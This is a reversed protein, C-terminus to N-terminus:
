TPGGGGGCGSIGGNVLYAKNIFRPLGKPGAKQGASRRARRGPQNRQPTQHYRGGHVVLGGVVRNHVARRTRQNVVAGRLVGVAQRAASASCGNKEFVKFAPAPGGRQGAASKKSLAPFVAESKKERSERFGSTHAGVSCGNSQLCADVPGTVRWGARPGRLPGGAGAPAVGLPQGQCLGTAHSAIAHRGTRRPANVHPPAGYGLANAQLAREGHGTFFLNEVTL